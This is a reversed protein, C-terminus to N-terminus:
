AGLVKRYLSEFQNGIMVPQFEREVQRRNREGMARMADPNKLIGLVAEALGSPDGVPVIVGGENQSGVLERNGGCDTGVVPLSAAMYELITNSLGENRSPTLAGVACLRLLSPVETIDGLFVVRDALNSKAVLAELHRREVGDGAVVFSVAPNRKHILEAAKIFTPVDKEPDLRAVMVVREGAPLETARSFPRAALRDSEAADCINPIVTFKDPATGQKKFHTAIAHANAVIARAKRDARNLLRVKHAPYIQGLDRRSTILPIGAMSAAFQGFIAADADWAHLLDFKESKLRGALARISRFTKLSVMNTIGIERVPGCLNEVHPLFYGERHFVMIEHVQGRGALEMAVRACQGETGGRILNYVLHLVKVPNLNVAGCESQV